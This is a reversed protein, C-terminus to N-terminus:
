ETLLCASVTCAASIGATAVGSQFHVLSPPVYDILTLTDSLPPVMVSSMITGPQGGAGTYGIPYLVFNGIGSIGTNGALHYTNGGIHGLVLVGFSGSVGGTVNVAYRARSICRVDPFNPFSTKVSVQSTGRFPVNQLAINGNWQNPM